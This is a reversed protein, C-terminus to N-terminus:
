SARTCCACRLWTYQPQRPPVLQQQPRPPRQQQATPASSPRQQLPPPPAHEAPLQSPPQHRAVRPRLASGGAPAPPVARPRWRPQRRQLPRTGAAPHLPISKSHSRARSRERAGQARKGGPRRMHVRTSGVRTSGCAFRMRNRLKSRSRPEFRSTAREETQLRVVSTLSSTESAFPLFCLLTVGLGHVRTPGSRLPVLQSSPASAARPRPALRPRPPGAAPRAVEHRAPHSACASAAHGRQHEESSPPPSARRSRRCARRM